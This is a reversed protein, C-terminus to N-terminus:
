KKSHLHLTEQPLVEYKILNNASTACFAQQTDQKVYQMGIM